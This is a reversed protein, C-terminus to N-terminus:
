SKSYRLKYFKNRNKDKDVYVEKEIPKLSGGSGDSLEIGSIKLKWKGAGHRCEVRVIIIGNVFIKVGKIESEVISAERDGFSLKIYDSTLDGAPEFAYSITANKDMLVEDDDYFSEFYDVDARSLAESDLRRLFSAYKREFKETKKILAEKEPENELIADTSSGKPEHNSQGCATIFLLFQMLILLITKKTANNM